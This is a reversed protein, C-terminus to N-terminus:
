TKEINKKRSIPILDRKKILILNDINILGFM